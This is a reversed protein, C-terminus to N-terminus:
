LHHQSTLEGPAAIAATLATAPDHPGLVLEMDADDGLVEFRRQGLERGQESVLPM